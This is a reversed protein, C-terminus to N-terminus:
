EEGILLYPDESGGTAVKDQIVDEPYSLLRM